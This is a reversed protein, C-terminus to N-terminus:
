SFPPTEKTYLYHCARSIIQPDYQELLSNAKDDLKSEIYKEVTPTRRLLPCFYRNGLLNDNVGHRASKIAEATFYGDPNLLDVYKIRQCDELPLRKDM